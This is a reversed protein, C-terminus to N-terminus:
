RRLQYGQPTPRFEISGDRDTRLLTADVEKARSIVSPDPHGFSNGRGCSVVVYNPKLAKLWESSTSNKSGHHGAMVVDHRQPRYRSLYWSELESPADGSLMASSSGNKISVFLSKSNDDQGYPPSVVNVQMKGLMFEGRENIKQIQSKSLNAERLTRALEPHDDFQSSYIITGIPIRDAIAPLGGIHDRDPHTILLVDIKQVALRRLEPLVLRRGADFTESAPGADILMTLGGDQVLVADGQGVQLFVLRDTGKSPILLYVLAAAAVVAIITRESKM